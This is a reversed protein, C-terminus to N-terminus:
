SSSAVTQMIRIIIFEAPRAPAIGIDIYLQGLGRATAPNNSEDIVVFFAESAKAGYLAGQQWLGTLFSTIEHRLTAWTNADNPEFVAWQFSQKLSQEIYTVLRRVNIYTWQPDRSLTRAGWIVPGYQPLDRLANVGEPNLREQEANGVNAEFGLVMSLMGDTVGAPAQYVGVNMDTEAYRGLVAGDAPILCPQSTAPDSVWIWPYYLAGYTSDLPQRFKLVADVDLGLPSTAVLFVRQEKECFDLADRLLARHAEGDAAGEDSVLLPADPLALLSVNGISELTGISKSADGDPEVGGALQASGSATLTTTGTSTTRVFLSADALRKALSDATAGPVVHSELQVYETGEHDVTPCANRRVHMALRKTSLTSPEAADVLSKAVMVRLEAGADNVSLTVLLADGWTGAGSASVELEGIQAKGAVGKGEGSRVVYCSQGGSEFFTYVSWATFSSWTFGGFTRSFENWSTVLTPEDVPGRETAGVFAAVSTSAGQIVPRSSSEHIYVGPYTPGVM